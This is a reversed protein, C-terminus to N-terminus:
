ARRVIQGAESLICIAIRKDTSDRITVVGM